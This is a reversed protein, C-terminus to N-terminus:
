RRTANNGEEEAKLNRVSATLIAVFENAERLCPAVTQSPALKTATLLRLWYSSERAEKRAITFKSTLDRRRQAAKAEELNAGISTGARLVQRALPIPVTNELVRYLRVIDCAFAFSRPCFDPPTYPM